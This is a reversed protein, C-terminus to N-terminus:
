KFDFRLFRPLLKAALVAHSPLARSQPALQLDLTCSMCICTGVCASCFLGHCSVKYLTKMALQSKEFAITLPLGSSDSIDFNSPWVKSGPFKSQASQLVCFVHQVNSALVRLNSAQFQLNNFLILASCQHLGPFSICRTQDTNLGGPWLFFRSAIATTGVGFFVELRGDSSSTIVTPLAM